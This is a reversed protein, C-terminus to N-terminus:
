VFYKKFLFPKVQSKFSDVSGSNRITLPLTNWLRPAFVLFARDGFTVCKTKPVFLFNQSTSRSQRTERFILLDSIYKPAQGNLAKFTLLLIKFDIRYRVPLWHLSKLVPTIHDHKRTGSLLRAASNQLYQLKELVCNPIGALLSNCYDLRSSIFAHIITQLADYNLCKKIRAINRLHYYGSKCVVLINVHHRM